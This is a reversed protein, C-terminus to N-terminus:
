SDNMGRVSHTVAQRALDLSGHEAVDQAMQSPPSWHIGPRMMARRATCAPGSTIPDGNADDRFVMGSKGGAILADSWGRCYEASLSQRPPGEVDLFHCPQCILGALHLLLPWRMAYGM